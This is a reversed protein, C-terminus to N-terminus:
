IKKSEGHCWMFSNCFSTKYLTQVVTEKKSM